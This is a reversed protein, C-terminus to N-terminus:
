RPNNFIDEASIVIPRAKFTTQVIEYMNYLEQFGLSNTFFPLKGNLLMTMRQMSLAVAVPDRILFTHKFYGFEGETYDNYKGDIYYAMEKIFVHNYGERKCQQIQGLTYERQAQFASESEDRPRGDECYFAILHPEHLVKVTELERISREFATSACRHTTWLLVRAMDFVSFGRYLLYHM